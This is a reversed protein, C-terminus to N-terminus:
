APHCGSSMHRIRLSCLSNSWHRQWTHSAERFHWLLGKYFMITYLIDYYGKQDFRSKCGLLEVFAYMSMYLSFSVELFALLFHFKITQINCICKNIKENDFLMGLSRAGESLNQFQTSERHTNQLIGPLPPSGLACLSVPAALSLTQLVPSSAFLSQACCM